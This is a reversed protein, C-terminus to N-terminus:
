TRRTGGATRASFAAAAWRSALAHWGDLDWLEGAALCGLMFWRVDASARLAAIARRFDPVAAESGDTFRAAFGDLLLDAATPEPVPPAVRAALAVERPETFSGPRRFFIAAEM